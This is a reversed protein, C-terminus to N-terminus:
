RRTAGISKRGGRSALSQDRARYKRPNQAINTPHLPVQRSPNQLKIAHPAIPNLRREADPQPHGLVTTKDAASLGLFPRAPIRGDRSGFQHVEAGVGKGENFTRNTGVEVSAGGDTIQYRISRRLVQERNKWITYAIRIRLFVYGLSM